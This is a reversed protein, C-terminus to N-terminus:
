CAVSLFPLVAISLSMLQLEGGTERTAAGFPTGMSYDGADLILVPGQDARAARRRAILSALRAWGGRTTDDNLTFPTYDASPGMGILSSHMDNTHLITFSKKMTKEERTAASLVGPLLVSASAAVSVALFERRSLIKDDRKKYIPKKM